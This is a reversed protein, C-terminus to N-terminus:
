PIPDWNKIKEIEEPPPLPRQPPPVEHPLARTSMEDTWQTSDRTSNSSATEWHDDTPDFGQLSLGRLYDIAAGLDPAEYTETPPIAGHEVHVLYRDGSDPQKTRTVREIIIRHNDLTDYYAAGQDDSTFMQSLKPM